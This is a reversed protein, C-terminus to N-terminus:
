TRGGGGSVPDRVQIPGTGLYAYFTSMDGTVQQIVTGQQATYKHM